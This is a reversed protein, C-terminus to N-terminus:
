LSRSLFSQKLPARRGHLSGRGAAATKARDRRLRGRSTVGAKMGPMKTGAPMVMEFTVTGTLKGNGAALANVEATLSVRQMNNSISDSM